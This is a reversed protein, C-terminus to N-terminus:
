PFTLPEVVARQESKKGITLVVEVVARQESKKGITLVVMEHMWEKVEALDGQARKVGRFYIRSGLHKFVESDSPNRTVAVTIRGCLNTRFATEYYDAGRVTDGVEGGLHKLTCEIVESMIAMSVMSTDIAFATVNSAHAWGYPWKPGHGSDKPLQRPSTTPEMSKKSKQAMVM